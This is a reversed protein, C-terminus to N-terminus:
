TRDPYISERSDDFNPNYSKQEAIWADFFERWRSSDEIYRDPFLESGTHSPLEFQEEIVASWSKGSEEAIRAIRRKQEDTLQIERIDIAM